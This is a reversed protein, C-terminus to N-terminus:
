LVDSLLVWSQTKYYAVFQDPVNVIGLGPYPVKMSTSDPLTLVAYPSPDPNMSAVGAVHAPTQWGYGGVASLPDVRPGPSVPQVVPSLPAPPCMANRAPPWQFAADTFTFCKQLAEKVGLLPVNCRGATVIVAGTALTLTFSSPLSAYAHSEMRVTPLAM